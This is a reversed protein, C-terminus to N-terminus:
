RDQKLYFFLLLIRFPRCTKQPITVARIEMAKSKPTNEIERTSPFMRWVAGVKGGVLVEVGMACGDGERVYETVGRGAIMVGVKGAVMVEVRGRVGM